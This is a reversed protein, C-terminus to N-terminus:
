RQHMEDRTLPGSLELPLGKEMLRIAREVAQRREETMEPARYPALTAVPEGHRTIVIEEGASVRALLMSFQHNAERATVRRMVAM